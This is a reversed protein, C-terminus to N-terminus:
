VCKGRGTPSKRTLTVSLPTSVTTNEYAPQWPQGRNAHLWPPSVQSLGVHHLPSAMWDYQVGACAPEVSLTVLVIVCLSTQRLPDGPNHVRIHCSLPLLDGGCCGSLLWWLFCVFFKSFTSQTVQKREDTSYKVKICKCMSVVSAVVRYARHSNYFNIVAATSWTECFTNSLQLFCSWFTQPSYVCLFLYCYM